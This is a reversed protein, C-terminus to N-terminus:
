GFRARKEGAKPEPCIPIPEQPFVIEDVPVPSNRTQVIRFVKLRGAM